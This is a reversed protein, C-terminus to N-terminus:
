NDGMLDAPKTSIIANSIHMDELLENVDFDFEQLKLCSDLVFDICYQCNSKNWKRKGMIQAVYDGGMTRSIVPTLFKFKIYRKYDIGFSMIKMAKQMNELSDKVNDIFDSMKRDTIGMFFASNFSMDKGFFFPSYRYHGEKNKEYSLLLVDFALATKEICEDIKNDEMALQAEELLTKVQQNVILSLISVDKFEIGFCNFTNQEFFDITNIKSIEIDSKSPLLGKHKLNVRRMNLNKMSEKLTLFPFETWYSMFNLKDSAVNKEEALLKLFMEISDQFSLISFAAITESQYTHEVGIQYLQKILALRKIILDQNIM